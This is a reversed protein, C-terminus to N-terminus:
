AEVSDFVTVKEWLHSCNKVFELHIPHKQYIEQGALDKFFMLESVEWSNDVVDRKETAAVTGVRLSHVTEIKALTKLGAILKARDTASGPNKLWFFVQHLIPYNQKMTPLPIASVTAAATLIASTAIFRRRTSTSM